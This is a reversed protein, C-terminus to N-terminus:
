KRKSLEMFVFGFTVAVFSSLFSSTADNASIEATYNVNYNMQTFFLPGIYAGFALLFFTFGFWFLITTLLNNKWTYLLLSLVCMVLLLLFFMEVPEMVIVM